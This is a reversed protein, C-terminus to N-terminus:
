RLHVRVGADRRQHDGGPRRHDHDRASRCAAHRSPRPRRQRDHGQRGRGRHEGGPRQHPPTPLDRRARLRHGRVQVTKFVHGPAFILTRNVSEYDSGATASADETRAEVRVPESSGNSLTVEFVADTQGADGELVTVDSVSLSPEPPPEREFTAVADDSASAAYLSEGDPSVTPSRLNDLGSNAGGAAASAVQACAGSGGPGSETEGTVCGQYALAGTATAAM